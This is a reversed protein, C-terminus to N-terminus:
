SLDVVAGRELAANIFKPGFENHFDTLEHLWEPMSEYDEEKKQHKFFLGDEPGSRLMASTTRIRGIKLLSVASEIHAAAGPSPVAYIDYLITDPQVQEIEVFCKSQLSLDEKPTCLAICWPFRKDAVVTGDSQAGAFDSVGLQTPYASYKTFYDLIWQLPYSVSATITTAVCNKFFLDEKEGTKRGGFLINGSHANQRFLKLAVCPFIKASALHGTVQPLATLFWPLADTMSPLASSLRIIGCQNDRFLGTYGHGPFWEVEISAVFGHACLIRPESIFDDRLNLNTTYDANFVRDKIDMLSPWQRSDGLAEVQKNKLLHAWILSLQERPQKDRFQEYDYVCQPKPVSGGASFPCKPTSIDEIFTYSVHQNEKIVYGKGNTLKYFGEVPDAFVDVMEKDDVVGVEDASLSPAVRIRVRAGPCNLQLRKM